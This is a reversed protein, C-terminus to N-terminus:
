VVSKRDLGAAAAKVKAPTGDIYARDRAAQAETLAGEAEAREDHLAQRRAHLSAARHENTTNTM